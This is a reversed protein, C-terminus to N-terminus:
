EGQYIAAPQDKAADPSKADKSNPGVACRFGCFGPWNEPMCYNRYAAPFFNPGNIFWRGGRLVRSTGAEPGAPNRAPASQYYGEGYWDACWQWVNGTMDMAGYPSNCEPHATVPKTLEEPDLTAAPRRVSTAYDGWPYVRGDPGRAAKEWQAETPLTAGAWRAYANADEWSVNVVPHDDQAGHHPNPSKHGTAECFKRYQAVTVPTKYISYGDLYVTHQPSENPSGQGDKSGMLFEGAPVYVMEAGDKPNVSVQGPVQSDADKAKLKNLYSYMQIGTQDSALRIWFAQPEMGFSSEIVSVAENGAATTKELDGANGYRHMRAYADTFRYGVRHLALRQQVKRNNGALKEAEDLLKGTKAMLEPTFMAIWNYGGCKQKSMAAEWANWYQRMPKEAPGYFGRYFDDLIEDTKRHTNWVLKSTLYFNIGQNAWHQQTESEFGTVGISRYYPLDKSIDHVIPWPAMVYFHGYYDYVSVHKCVKTWGLIMNRFRTNLECKPDNVPHVHCFEWTMHCLMTSYNPDPVASVPPRTHSVYALIGVMKGPHKKNVEKLIKNAFDVFRDTQSGDTVGYHADVARCKDCTCFGGGDNPSISICVADPYRDYYENVATIFKNLVEPNSTCLQESRTGDENLAFWEPHAKRNEETPPIYGSWSHGFFYSPSGVDGKNRRLWDDAGPGGHWILGGVAQYDPRNRWKLSKLTVTKSQPVEEGIEGPMYWRVGLFRELLDYVVHQAGRQDGGVLFIDVGGGRRNRTEIAFGDAAPRQGKWDAVPKQGFVGILIRNGSVSLDNTIPTQAGSMKSLYLQLDKAGLKLQDSADAAIVISCNPKGNDVLTVAASASSMPVLALLLFLSAFRLMTPGRILHVGSSVGGSIVLPM